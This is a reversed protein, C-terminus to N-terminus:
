QVSLGILNGKVDRIQMGEYTHLPIYGPVGVTLTIPIYNGAADWLLSFTGTSGAALQGNKMTVVLWTGAYERNVYGGFVMDSRFGPSDLEGGYDYLADQYVVPNNYKPVAYSVPLYDLPGSCAIGVGPASCMVNTVSMTHQPLPLQSTQESWAGTTKNWTYSILHLTTTGAIAYDDSANDFAYYATGLSDAYVIGVGNPIPLIGIPQRGLPDSPTQMTTQVAPILGTHQTPSATTGLLPTVSINVQGYYTTDVAFGLHNTDDLICRYADVFAYFLYPSSIFTTKPSNEFPPQLKNLAQVIADMIFNRTYTGALYWEVFNHGFSADSWVTLGLEPMNASFGSTPTAALTAPYVLRVAAIVEDEPVTIYPGGGAVRSDPSAVAVIGLRNAYGPDQRVLGDYATNAYFNGQSHAVIIIRKGEKLLPRYGPQLPDTADGNLQLQMTADNVYANANTATALDTMMTKFWDPAAAIGGLWRWFSSDNAAQKQVFAEYLQALGALSGPGTAGGNDAYALKFELEALYLFAQSYTRLRNELARMSQFAMKRTDYM